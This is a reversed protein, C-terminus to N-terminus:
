YVETEPTHVKYDRAHSRKAVKKAPAAPEKRVAENNQKLKGVIDQITQWAMYGFGALATIGLGGALLTQVKKLNKLESALKSHGEHALQLADEVERGKGDMTTMPEKSQETTETKRQVTNENALWKSENDKLLGKPKDHFLATAAEREKVAGLLDEVKQFKEEVYPPFNDIKSKVDRLEADMKDLYELRSQLETEEATGINNERLKKIDYGLSSVKSKLERLDNETLSKVHTKLNEVDNQLHSGGASKELLDKFHVLQKEFRKVDNVSDLLDSELRPVSTEINGFGRELKELTEDVRHTWEENAELWETFGDSEPDDEEAEIADSPVESPKEVKTARKPPPDPLMTKLRPLKGTESTELIDGGQSDGAVKEEQNGASAARNKFFQALEDIVFSNKGKVDEDLNAYLEHEPRSVPSPLVKTEKDTQKITPPNCFGRLLEEPRPAPPPTPAPLFPPPADLDPTPSELISPEPSPLESSPSSKSNQVTGKRRTTAAALLKKRHSSKAQSDPKSIPAMTTKTARLPPTGSSIKNELKAAEQREMDAHLTKKLERMRVNVASIGGSDSDSASSWSDYGEDGPRKKPKSKKTPQTYQRENVIPPPYQPIVPPHSQTPRNPKSPDKHNLVDRYNSLLTQVIEDRVKKPIPEDDEHASSHSSWHDDWDEKTFVPFAVMTLNTSIFSPAFRLNSNAGRLM